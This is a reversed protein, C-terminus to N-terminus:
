QEAQSISLEADTVVKILTEKLKNEFSKLDENFSNSIQNVNEQILSGINVTIQRVSRGGDNINEIAQKTKDAAHDKMSKTENMGSLDAASTGKNADKIIESVGKQNGAKFANYAKKVAEFNGQSILDAIEKQKAFQQFAPAEQMNLANTVAGSAINALNTTGKEQSFLGLARRGVDILYNIKQFFFDFIRQAFSKFSEWLASFDLNMLAEGMGEIDSWLGTVFDKFASIKSIWSPFIVDMMQAVNFIKDFWKFAEILIDVLTFFSKIQKEIVPQYKRLLEEGYKLGKIIYPLVREGIRILLNNFKNKAITSLTSFDNQANKLMQDLPLNTAGWDNIITNVSQAQTAVNNLLGVLGENGGVDKIFAKRARDDQGFAAMMDALQPLITNLGKAKGTIKDFIEVPKGLKKSMEEIKKAQESKFLDELAGKTMTAAINADKTTATFFAFLQNAQDFNQGAAAASGAFESMVASFEKQNVVGFQVTKNLSEIFRESDKAELGYARFGKVMANITDGMESGTALSFKGAVRAIDEMEKKTKAIGGSQIDYFAKSTQTADTGLEMSLDLITNKYSNLENQNLGLNLNKFQTFEKNFESAAEVSKYLGVGLATVAAGAAVYPNTALSMARSLGPIENAAESLNAANRKFIGNLGNMKNGTHHIKNDLGGLNQEFRKTGAMMGSLPQTFNDKVTAIWELGTRM